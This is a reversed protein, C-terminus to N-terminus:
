RAITEERVRRCHEGRVRVGSEDDNRRRRIRMARQNFLRRRRSRLVDQALLRHRGRNGIAVRHDGRAPFGAGLEGDVVLHAEHRLVRQHAIFQRGALEAREGAHGHCRTTEAQRHVARVVAFRKRPQGARWDDARRRPKGALGEVIRAARVKEVLRAFHAKDGRIAPPQQEVDAVILAV